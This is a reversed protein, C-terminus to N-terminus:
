RGMIAYPLFEIIDSAMLSHEGLKEAALDGAKGHLYVGLTAAQTLSLTGGKNQAILGGIIGALVDGSGATAMGSNGTENRYIRNSGDAVATRHDKLVCVCGFKESIKHAYCPIDASIHERSIGSIREAELLHPTIIKGRLYKCLAPSDQLLNLGDADVVAPIDSASLAASLVRASARTRGLGCGIVMADAWAVADEIVARDPENGNYVTVIAEPLSTQLPILNEAPTLIRVLGAGTRYAAKAALFAAGCMGASGCVLLLKGYDGKNSDAQRKPMLALIEKGHSYTTIDM